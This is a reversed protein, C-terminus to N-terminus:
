KFNSEFFKVKCSLLLSEFAFGSLTFFIPPTNTTRSAPKNALIMTATSSNQQFELFTYGVFDIVIKLNRDVLIRMISVNSKIIIRSM